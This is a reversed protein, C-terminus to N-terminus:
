GGVWAFFSFHQMVHAYPLVDQEEDDEKMGPPSLSFCFLYVPKTKSKWIETKEEAAKIEPQDTCSRSHQQM